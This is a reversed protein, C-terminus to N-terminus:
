VSISREKVVWDREEAIKKLINHRFTTSASYGVAYLNLTNDELEAIKTGYYRVIVGRCVCDTDGNYVIGPTKCLNAEYFAKLTQRMRYYRRFYEKREEKHAEYYERSQLNVKDKNKLYWKKLYKKNAM